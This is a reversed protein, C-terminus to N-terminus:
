PQQVIGNVITLDVPDGTTADVARVNVTRGVGGSLLASIISNALNSLTIKKTEPTGSIDVVVFLDGVAVDTLSSLESIKVSM